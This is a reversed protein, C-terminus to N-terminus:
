HNRYRNKSRRTYSSNNVGLSSYKSAPCLGELVIGEEAAFCTHANLADTRQREKMGEVDSTGGVKLVAVGDSLNKGSTGSVLKEKEYESTTIDLQEIIEQIM